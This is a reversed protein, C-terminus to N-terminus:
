FNVAGTEKSYLTDFKINNNNLFNGDAKFIEHLPILQWQM